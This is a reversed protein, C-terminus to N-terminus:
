KSTSVPLLSQCIQKFQAIDQDSQTGAPTEFDIEYTHTNDAPVPLLCQGITLPTKGNPTGQRNLSIGYVGTLSSAQLAGSTSWAQKDFAAKLETYSSTRYLVNYQHQLSPDHFDVAELNSPNSIQASPTGQIENASWGSPISITFYKGQFTTIGGPTTTTTTSTSATTTVSSTTMATSTTTASTTTVVSSTTIAASTTPTTPVSATTLAPTAGVTSASSVTTATNNGCAALSVVIVLLSLFAMLKKAFISFM